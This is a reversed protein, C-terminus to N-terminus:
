NCRCEQEASNWHFGAHECAGQDELPGFAAINCVPAPAPCSCRATTFDFVLGQSLCSRNNNNFAEAYDATCSARYEDGSPRYCHETAVRQDPDIPDCPSPLQSLNFSYSRRLINCEESYRYTQCEGQDTQEVGGVPRGTRRWIYTCDCVTAPGTLAAEDATDPDIADVSGAGCGSLACSILAVVFAGHLSPKM